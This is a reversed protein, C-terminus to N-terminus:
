GESFAAKICRKCAPLLMVNTLQKCINSVHVFDSNHAKGKQAMMLRFHAYHLTALTQEM